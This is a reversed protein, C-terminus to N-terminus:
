RMPQRAIEGASRLTWDEAFPKSNITMSYANYDPECGFMQANESELQKPDFSVSPTILLDLGPPITNKIYKLAKTLAMIFKKPKDVEIPPITFETSVNDLSTTFWPNKPDFAFPKYKTGKTIGESSIAKGTAREKLFIEIDAGITKLDVKNM